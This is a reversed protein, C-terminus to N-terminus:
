KAIMVPNSIYHLVNLCNCSCCLLHMKSVDIDNDSFEFNSEDGSLEDHYVTPFDEVQCDIDISNTEENFDFDKNPKCQSGDVKWTKTSKTYFNNYHLYWTSKSVAKNCHPCFVQDFKRPKSSKETSDMSGIWRDICIFM